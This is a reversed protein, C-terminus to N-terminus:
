RSRCCAARARHELRRESVAGIQREIRQRFIDAAVAIEDAACDDAGHAIELGIRAIRLAMPVCSSGCEHQISSGSAPSTTAACPGLPRAVRRYDRIERGTMGLHRANMIRRQQRCIMRRADNISRCDSSPRSSRRTRPRLAALRLGEGKEVPQLDELEGDAEAAGFRKIQWGAVVTCEPSVSSARRSIPMVGANIRMDIPMSCGSSRTASM